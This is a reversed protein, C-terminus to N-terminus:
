LQVTGDPAVMVAPVPVDLIVTVKPVLPPLTHTEVTLLQPVLLALQM